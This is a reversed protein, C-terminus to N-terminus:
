AKFYDTLDDLSNVAAIRLLNDFISMESREMLIDARTPHKDIFVDREDRYLFHTVLAKDNSVIGLSYTTTGDELSTTYTIGELSYVIETETVSQVGNIGAIFPQQLNYTRVEELRSETTGTVTQYQIGISGNSSSSNNVASIGPNELERLSGLNTQVQQLQIPYFLDSVLIKTQIKFVCWSDHSSIGDHTNAAM